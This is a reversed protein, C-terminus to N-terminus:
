TTVKRKPFWPFFANTTQQYQRYKDGRSKVAQTESTPIGTVKALFYWMALPALLTLFGLPNHISFSVYTWWHLWEFFYNPHRSYKWLGVNCVEGKNSPDQKFLYLQYDAISEGAISIVWIAVALSDLYCWPDNLSSILLLPLAFLYAGLAQMQYFRFMRWSAQEGWERKLKSYREDEPHSSWRIYLFYSLRIAWLFLLTAAVWRRTPEGSGLLCFLGGVIAVSMGWGVDVVAANNIRHQLVWFAAFYAVMVVLGILAIILYSM